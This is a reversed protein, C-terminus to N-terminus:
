GAASGGEVEWRGGLYVCVFSDRLICLVFWDVLWSLGLCGLLSVFCFLVLKAVFPEIRDRQIVLEKHAIEGCVTAVHAECAVQKCLNLPPLHAESLSLSLSLPWCTCPGRVSPAYFFLLLFTTDAKTNGFVPISLAHPVVYQEAM